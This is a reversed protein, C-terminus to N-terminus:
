LSHLSLLPNTSRADRDGSNTAAETLADTASWTFGEACTESVGTRFVGSGRLLRLEEERTLQSLLLGAREEVEVGNSPRDVVAEDFSTSHATSM